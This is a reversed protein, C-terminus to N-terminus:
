IKLYDAIEDPTLPKHKSGDRLATARESISAPEDQVDQLEGDREITADVVKQMQAAFYNLWERKPLAPWNRIKHEIDSGWDALESPGAGNIVMADLEVKLAMWNASRPFTKQEPEKTEKEPTGGAYDGNRHLNGRPWGNVVKPAAEGDDEDPNEEFSLGLALTLSYRQLYTLTSGISQIPNKSGSNDCPGWLESEESYGARHSVICSVLVRNADQKTRFRYSLGHEAIVPDIASAIGAMDAYRRDNHGVRNKAIPKIQARAAAIASEYEKRAQTKEWREQLDMLKTLIEISAGRELASALMTMPNTVLAPMVNASDDVMTPATLTPSTNSMYRGEM